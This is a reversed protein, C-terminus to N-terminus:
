GREVEVTEGRSGDVVVRDELLSDLEVETWDGICDIIQGDTVTATIIVETDTEDVVRIDLPGGEPCPHDFMLRLSGDPSEMVRVLEATRETSTCGAFLVAGLLLAGIRTHCPM